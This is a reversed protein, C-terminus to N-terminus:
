NAAGDLLWSYRLRLAREMSGLVAGLGLAINLWLPLHIPSEFSGITEAIPPIQSIPEIIQLLSLGVGFILMIVSFFGIWRSLSRHERELRARRGEASKPDPTLQHEAGDATVYHCRKLGFSSTTM